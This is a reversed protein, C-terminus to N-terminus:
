RMVVVVVEGKVIALSMGGDFVAVVWKAERATISFRM